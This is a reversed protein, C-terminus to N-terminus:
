IHLHYTQGSVVLIALFDFNRDVNVCFRVVFLYLRLGYIIEATWFFHHVVAMRAHHCKDVLQYKTM